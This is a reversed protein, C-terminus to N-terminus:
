GASVALRAALHVGNIAQYYREWFTPPFWLDSDFFVSHSLDHLRHAEAFHLARQMIREGPLQVMRLRPQASAGGVGERIFDADEPRCYFVNLQLPVPCGRQQALSRVMARGRRGFYHCLTFLAFGTATSKPIVRFAIRDNIAGGSKGSTIRRM